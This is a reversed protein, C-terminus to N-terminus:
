GHIGFLLLHTIWMSYMDIWRVTRPDSLRGRYKRQLWWCCWALAELVVTKHMASLDLWSMMNVYSRWWCLVQEALRSVMSFFVIIVIIIIIVVLIAVVFWSTIVFVHCWRPWWRVMVSSALFIEGSIIVWVNHTMLATQPCWDLSIGLTWWAPFDDLCWIVILELLCRSCGAWHMSRWHKLVMRKNM